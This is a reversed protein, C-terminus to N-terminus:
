KTKESFYISRYLAGLAIFLAARDIEDTFVLFYLGAFLFVLGSILWIIRM